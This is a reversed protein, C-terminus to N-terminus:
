SGFTTIPPSLVQPTLARTRTSKYHRKQHADSKRQEFEPAMERPASKLTILARLKQDQLKTMDMERLFM